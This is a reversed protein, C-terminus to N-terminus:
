YGGRKRPAPGFRFRAGRASRTLIGSGPDGIVAAAVAFSEAAAGGRRTFVVVPPRDNLVRGSQPDVLSRHEERGATTQGRKGTGRANPSFAVAANSLEMVEPGRPPATERLGVRWGNQGPPPSGVVQVNGASVSARECGYRRLERMLEDAAYGHVIGSLDVRMGPLSLAASHEIADLRLNQSGILLKANSLEAATPVTGAAAARRWLDVYPGATVDFAGDSDKALRQAEVLVAFLEDGVRVAAGGAAANLAAVESEPRAPNLIGDLADLREVAAGMAAQAATADGAYVTM